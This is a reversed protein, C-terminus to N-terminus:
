RRGLSGGIGAAVNSRATCTSCRSPRPCGSTRRHCGATARRHCGSTRRPRCSKRCGSTRRHRCSKRRRDYKYGEAIQCTKSSVAQHDGENAEDDEGHSRYRRHDVLSTRYLSEFDCIVQAVITVPWTPVPERSLHLVGAVLRFAGAYLLLVLVFLVQPMDPSRNPHPQKKEHRRHM